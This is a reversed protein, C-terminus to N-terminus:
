TEKEKKKRAEFFAKIMGVLPIRPLVVIFFGGIDKIKKGPIMWLLVTMMFIFGYTCLLVTEMNTNNIKKKRKKIKTEIICLSYFWIKFGRLNGTKDIFLPV